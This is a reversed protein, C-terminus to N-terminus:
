GPFCVLSMLVFLSLLSMVLSLDDFVCFMGLGEYISGLSFSFIYVVVFFLVVLVVLGCIWDFWWFGM